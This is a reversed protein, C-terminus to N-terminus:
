APVQAPRNIKLAAAASITVIAAAVHGILVIASVAVSNPHYGLVTGVEAATVIALPLVFAFRKKAILYTAVISTLALGMGALLLPLMLAAGGRFLGGVLLSLVEGPDALVFGASLLFPALTGGVGFLLLGRTSDGALTRRSVKPLIISSFFGVLSYLGRGLIAAGAYLGAVHPDFVRKVIIVDYFTLTTILFTATATRLSGALLAGGHVGHRFDSIGFSIRLAIWGYVDTAILGAAIGLWTGTVGYGLTALAVAPLLKLIGELANSISLETYAEAVVFLGRQLYLITNAALACGAFIVAAPERLHLYAALPTALLAVLAAVGLSVITTPRMVTRALTGVRTRDGTAAVDAAIRTVVTMAVTAPVSCIFFASVLTMIDGYAAVGVIRGLILYLLFTGINLLLTGAFVVASHRLTVNERVRSLLNKV